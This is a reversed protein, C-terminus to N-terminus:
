EPLVYPTYLKVLTSFRNSLHQKRVIFTKYCRVPLIMNILQINEFNVIFINTNWMAGIVIKGMDQLIM